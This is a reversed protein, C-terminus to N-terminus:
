GQAERAPSKSFFRQLAPYVEKKDNVTVAVFKPDKIRDFSSM